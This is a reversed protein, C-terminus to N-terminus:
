LRVGVGAEVDGGVSWLPAGEVALARVVGSVGGTFFVPGLLPVEVLAQPGFAAGTTVRAPLPPYSRLIEAERDRTFAQRLWSVEALAGLMVVVPGLWFRTGGSLRGTVRHDTVLLGDGPMRSTGWGVSALGWWAGLALRYSLAVSWRLPAGVIVPSVMAGTARLAHPHFEVVGGKLAVEGFDRTVFRRAEVKAAGGFPLDVEQFALAFGRTQRVVYRGAPVAIVLPRGRAKNVEVVVDPRPQSALVFRGELSEDFQVKSRARSPETLMVDMSGTLGVDFQPHQGVDVSEAVTRREAYGYAEMLSVRGDDNADADGRLAALLHHTFLSGSLAEWEQASEHAGSSSIFVDGTAEPKALSLEYAPGRKAGKRRLGAECADVVVVRLAAKTRRALDRLETVPLESGTLHLVGDKGHSTAFVFLQVERGASELEAIRGTVEAFKERVQAATPRTLVLARGQEVGGLEVLVDRVRVADDEAHQLVVDDPRGYNSGLSVVVRVPEAAWAAQSMLLMVALARM